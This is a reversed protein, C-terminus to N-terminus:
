VMYKSAAYLRSFMNNVTAKASSLNYLYVCYLHNEGVTIELNCVNLVWIIVNSALTFQKMERSRFANYM